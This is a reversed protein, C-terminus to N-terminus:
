REDWPIRVGKFVTFVHPRIWDGCSRNQRMSADDKLSLHNVDFIDGLIIFIRQTVFITEVYPSQEAYWEHALFTATPTIIQLAGGSVNVSLCISNAVVKAWWAPIAMSFTRRNSSIQVFALWSASALWVLRLEEGAHAVLQSMGSLAM